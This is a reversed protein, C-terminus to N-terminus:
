FEIVNDLLNRDIDKFISVISSQSYNSIAGTTRPSKFIAEIM